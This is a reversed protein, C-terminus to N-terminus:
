FHSFACTQPIAHKSTRLRIQILTSEYLTEIDARFTHRSCTKGDALWLQYVAVVPVEHVPPFLLLAHLVRKPGDSMRQFSLDFAENPSMYKSISKRSASGIVNDIDKELDQWPGPTDLQEPSHGSLIGAIATILLPRSGCREVVRKAVAQLGGVATKHLSCMACM